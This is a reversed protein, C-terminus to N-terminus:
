LKPTLRRYLHIFINHALAENCIMKGDPKLVRTIERFAKELDLHHLAGYETIVDFSSDEFGTNEADAIRYSAIHGVGNRQALRSCNEISTNSIDIGIVEAAGNK